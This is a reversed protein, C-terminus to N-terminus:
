CNGIIILDYLNHKALPSGGAKGLYGNGRSTELTCEPDECYRPMVQHAGM